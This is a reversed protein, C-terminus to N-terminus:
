EGEQAPTVDTAGLLALEHTRWGMIMGQRIGENFLAWLFLIAQEGKGILTEMLATKAGEPAHALAAETLISIFKERRDDDGELLKSIHVAFGVGNAVSVGFCQQSWDHLDGPTAGVGHELDIVRKFAEVLATDSEDHHESSFSDAANDALDPTPELGEMVELLKDKMTNDTTNSMQQGGKTTVETIVQNNGDLTRVPDDAAAGYKLIACLMCTAQARGAEVEAKQKLGLWMQEGCDPCDALEYKEPPEKPWRPKLKVPVCAALTITPM